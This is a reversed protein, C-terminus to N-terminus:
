MLNQFQCCVNFDFCLKSPKIPLDPSTAFGARPCSSFLKQENQFKGPTIQIDKRRPSMRLTSATTPRAYGPTTHLSGPSKFLKKLTSPTSGQVAKMSPTKVPSEKKPTLTRPKPIPVPSPVFLQQTKHEEEDDHLTREHLDEQKNHMALLEEASKPVCNDVEKRLSKKEDHTM